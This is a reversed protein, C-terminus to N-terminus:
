GGSNQGQSGDGASGEDQQRQDQQAQDQAPGGGQASDGPSSGQGSQDRSLGLEKEVAQEGARVQEPHERAEKEAEDKLKDFDSVRHEM